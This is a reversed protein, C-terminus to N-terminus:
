AKGKAHTRAATANRQEIFFQAILGDGLFGNETGWKSIYRIDSKTTEVAQTVADRYQKQLPTTQSPHRLEALMEKTAKLIEESTNDMYQYSKPDRSHRLFEDALMEEVTLENGGNRNFIHKMIYLSGERIPYSNITDIANVLLVPTNVLNAVTHPGSDCGLLFESRELCYVELEQSRVPGAAVDVVGPRELPNMSPDGLRVITFGEQVLHDIAEFYTEIDANRLAEGQADNVGTVISKFGPGRVHLAVLRADDPIGAELAQARARAKIEPRLEVAVSERILERRYYPTASRASPSAIASGLLRRRTRRLLWRAARYPFRVNKNLAIEVSSSVLWQVWGPPMLMRVDESRLGFLAKNVVKSPRIIYLPLDQRKATELAMLIELGLHGYAWHHPKCVVLKFPGFGVM